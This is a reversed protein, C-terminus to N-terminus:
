PTLAWYGYECALTSPGDAGVLVQCEAPVPVCIFDGPRLRAFEGNIGANGPDAVVVMTLVTTDMNQVYLMQTKDQEATGPFGPIEIQAPTSPVVLGGSQVTPSEVTPIITSDVSLTDTTVGAGSLILRANITAM